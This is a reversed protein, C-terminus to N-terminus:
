IGRECDRLQKSFSLLQQLYAAQENKQETFLSKNSNDFFAVIDNKLNAYQPHKAIFRDIDTAFLSAGYVQNFAQHLYLLANKTTAKTKTARKLQRHAQAFAGGMYPLWRRDANIYLLGIAAILVCVIALVLRIKHQSEDILTPKQQPQLNTKAIDITGAVLPAFWFRWVPVSISIATPGGSFAFNEAPLQMVTPTPAQAFVQYTLDIKYVNKDGSKNNSVKIETLEIGNSNNGKTPLSNPSLQYPQSAVLEIQRHLVDGIHIGISQSPNSIKLMSIPSEEQAQLSSNLLSLGTLIFLKIMLNKM